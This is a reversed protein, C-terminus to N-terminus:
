STAVRDKGQQKAKYLLEDARRLTDEFSADQQTFATVGISLTAPESHIEGDINHHRFAHNLREAFQTAQQYDLNPLVIVFEDGGYRYAFDTERLTESCIRSFAVIVEDGAQHGLTDNVQKLNDMDLMLVSTPTGYRTFSAFQAALDQELKRRNFLGTLQDTDSLYRLSVEMKHRETINSAVWLVVREDAVTYDLPQIRGEFWIPEDPGVDPLGIIDKNSLEYEVITMGGASLAQAIKDIFWQAKDAKLIEPIRKGILSTGEHYYRIDRGGFVNVYQGSESLIFAPDPLADLIARMHEINM